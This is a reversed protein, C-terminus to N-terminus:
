LYNKMENDTYGSGANCTKPFCVLLYKNFLETASTLLHGVFCMFLNTYNLAM